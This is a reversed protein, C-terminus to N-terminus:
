FGARKLFEFTENYYIGVNLAFNEGHGSGPLIYAEILRSRPFMATLNQKKYTDTCDELCAPEDYQGATVLVPGEYEPATMNYVSTSFFELLAFPQSISYAYEVAPLEYDRAKYFFNTHAYIDVATLYGTDLEAFEPNLQSAIRPALAEELLQGAYPISEYAQGTMVAADVLSPYITLLINTIQSGFSHGVAVVSKAKGVTGTYQGKRVLQILSALIEIQNIAQNTYGSVRSCVFDANHLLFM